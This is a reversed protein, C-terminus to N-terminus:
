RHDDPSRTVQQSTTAPEAVAQAAVARPAAPEAAFDRGRILILTAVAAIAAIAAGILLITNLSDAFGARTAAAIAHRAAATLGPRAGSADPGGIGAAIAHAHAALPTGALRSEATHRLQATFIAGLAAIGAALGVSRLTSNIGSAMGARAPAVVGIATSALPVNILGAGAGAAILGPILHTWGSGTSLGRMLLLGATVLVFGASIMLRVPVITTLRGAIGATVFVAVTLFLIRLGTGLASFGLENQLYLIIYTLLSFVSASIAFAAILGGTFTPVRFLSLDLMPRRQAAEIVVFAALLVGAAALSAIVKASGWGGGASILGYVLTALAASFSV